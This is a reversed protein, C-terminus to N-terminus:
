NAYQCSVKPNWDEFMGLPNNRWAWVHFAWIGFAANPHFEQGLLMPPNPDTWAAFPVIYELAVLRLTGDRQPEYVLTEPQSIDVVDDFLALNAWHYGMGGVPPNDFCDTIRDAWGAAVAMDHNHFAATARRAAAVGQNFLAPAAPGNMAATMVDADARPPETTVEQCAVVLIATLVLTIRSTARM